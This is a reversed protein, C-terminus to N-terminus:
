QSGGENNAALNNPGRATLADRGAHQDDKILISRDWSLGIAPHSGWGSMLLFESITFQLTPECIRSHGHSCTVLPRRQSLENIVPVCILFHSRQM